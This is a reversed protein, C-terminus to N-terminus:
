PKQRWGCREEGWANLKLVQSVDEDSMAEVAKTSLRM